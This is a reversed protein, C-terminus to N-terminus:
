RRLASETGGLSGPGAYTVPGRTRIATGDSDGARAIRGRAFLVRVVGALAALLGALLAASWLGAGAAAALAMGHALAVAGLDLALGYHVLALVPPALGAAIAVLAVRVRWGAAAFLWLHAAPIMLGAAYPNLMWALAVLGCLWLGTAVALGEVGGAPRSRRMRDVAGNRGGAAARGRSPGLVAAAARAGWCALGAALVASAMAVIGGTELPFLAPMVPSDPHALAGTAALARLWLWAAPLPVAAVALWGVWPMVAVSRRRARFFADLAALLAPLLASGVVLRVAWDPLVNRLAVIGELEDGFAPGARPGAADVAGVARLAARGFAQLRAELVPESAAPGREGSESLLVAPLGEAGIPGQPSLTLPLARRVWQGLAHPGGADSRTERRVAARVTRELALPASRASSPWAVVWPKAIRTGAMDGLVIVGDVPGGAEGRAWARAGAFGTTAGSTSVLVLTKRLERSKFVRALELLAATGSLEALGPRGSADRHALVVIRRNSLGPRTAVVTVLAGEGDATRGSTATRRVRFAARAGPEEPAALVQAVLEALGDDAGSGARRDPFAAAMGQLSQPEPAAGTGFARAGSFSDAPLASRAPAPRDALAFAAVFLAVLAPLFATRYVRPDLV